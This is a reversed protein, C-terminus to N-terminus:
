INKKNHVYRRKKILFSKIEHVKKLIIVLSFGLCMVIACNIFNFGLETFTNTSQHIILHKSEM